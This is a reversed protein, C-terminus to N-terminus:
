LSNSLLVLILDLFMILQVYYVSASALYTRSNGALFVTRQNGASCTKFVIEPLHSIIRTNWWSPLTPVVCTLL